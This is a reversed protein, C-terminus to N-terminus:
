YLSKFIAGGRSILYDFGISSQKTSEDVDFQINKELDTTARIAILQLQEKIEWSHSSAIGPPAYIVSGPEIDHNKGGIDKMVARGSIVYYFVEILHWHLYEHTGPKFSALVVMIKETPNQASGALRKITQGKAIGPGEAVEKQNFVRLTSKLEM